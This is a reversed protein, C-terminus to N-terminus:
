QTDQKNQKDLFDHHLATFSQLAKGHIKFVHKWSYHLNYAIHEWDECNIYRAYLIEQHTEDPLMNIRAKAAVRMDVLRDREDIVRDLYREMRIYKDAIDSTKSGSVREGLGASQITMIDSKIELLEKEVQKLVGRQRRVRSLYEKATM